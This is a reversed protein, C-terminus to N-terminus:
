RRYENKEGTIRGGTQRFYETNIIDTLRESVTRLIYPANCKISPKFGYHYPMAQVGEQNDVEIFFEPKSFFCRRVKVDAKKLRRIFRLADQSMYESGMLTNSTLFSLGKRTLDCIGRDRTYITTPSGLMSNIVAYAIIKEDTKIKSDEDKWEFRQNLYLLLNKFQEAVPDFDAPKCYRKALHDTRRIKRLYAEFRENIKETNALQNEKAVRIAYWGQKEMVSTSKKYEDYLEPFIFIQEHHLPLHANLEDLFAILAELDSLDSKPDRIIRKIIVADHMMSVACTDILVHSKRAFINRVIGRALESNRTKPIPTSGQVYMPTNM